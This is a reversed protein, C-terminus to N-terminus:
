AAQKPKEAQGAKRAGDQKAITIRRPKMEEPVQRVLDITLLGNDLSAGTVTMHDALEFRRTFPRV